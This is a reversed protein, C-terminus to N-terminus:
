KERPAKAGKETIVHVFGSINRLELGTLRNEYIDCIYYYIGPSVYNNNYKGNWNIEPDDTQYVLNGARSYIKMDIKEIFPYAKAKLIDNINDGNPTFVNPIEFYTCTDVCILPISYVSENDFSDIATVAYCGAMTLEPYHIFTTDELSNRTGIVGLDMDLKSKYYVKYGVVDIGCEPDPKTWTLENCLSDCNSFVTLEPPCPPEGDDPVGCNEHSYNILPDVIGQRSYTGISKVLYCYEVGNALNGDHYLTDKSVSLSDFDLTVRNQRYIIYDTNIWPVNKRICLILENDAPEIHLFISSAEDPNGIVFRNGDEDNYLEVRYTYGFDTTNILTDVFTTDELDVTQFTHVLSFNSGWIGPSRYIRYEYPGPAPITDLDKPKAWALFISGNSRDTYNVSVNTIVPTGQMLVSCVEGSAISEAGNPFLAVIMYCYKTGQLLGAGNNDDLFLTDNLGYTEGIALYGTYGPVGNECTDPVFGYSGIRRYIRYGTVNNCISPSWNLRIYNKTPITIVNEPAPGLVKINFNDIDVLSLEENNDEVKIVISYPQERVHNCTTQWRFVSTVYGSDSNTTQFEAPSDELLFVGGTALHTMLDKDEDTSTINYEIYTGAEVCFNSLEPNVPPNNDIEFVTIQMDRVINGIKIGQRWEEINIAINFNGTEMPSDWVLDGTLPNVYLTDSAPPFTYNEIPEGNEKLCIALSYSLSDGDYDFASPNHVFKRGLAANDIPPNLLVPTNNFGIAPNILMTTKISFVVNVSSPINLVGYNRNPDQVVIEYVGPGPFTHNIIYKNRKYFNPLYVIEVRPAVSTTNDGWDVTLEDRDALSLTYTFTTITLEFTLDSIQRYTIEGARNHTAYCISLNIFITLIISLIRRM